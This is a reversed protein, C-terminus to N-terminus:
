LIGKYHRGSMQSSTGGKVEGGGKFYEFTIGHKRLRSMTARKGADNKKNSIMKKIKEQGAPGIGFVKINDYNVKKGYNGM